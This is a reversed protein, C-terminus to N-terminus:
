DTRKVYSGAFVQQIEAQKGRPVGLEDLIPAFEEAGRLNARFIQTCVALVANFM